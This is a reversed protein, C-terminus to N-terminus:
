PVGDKERRSKERKLKSEKKNRLMHIDGADATQSCIDQIVPYLEHQHATREGAAYDGSKKWGRYEKVAVGYKQRARAHDPSM